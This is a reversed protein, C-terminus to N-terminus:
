TKKNTVVYNVMNQVVHIHTKIATTKKKEVTYNSSKLYFCMTEMKQVVYLSTQISDNKTEKNTGRLKYKILHQHQM